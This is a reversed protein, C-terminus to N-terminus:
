TLFPQNCGPTTPGSWPSSRSPRNGTRWHIHALSSHIKAWNLLDKKPDTEGQAVQIYKLASDKQGRELAALAALQLSLSIDAPKRPKARHAADGALLAREEAQQYQARVFNARARDLLPAKEDQSLQEALKPVAERSLETPLKLRKVLEEFVRAFRQEDGAKGSSPGQLAYAAPFERLFDRFESM